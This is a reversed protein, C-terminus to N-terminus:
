IKFFNKLYEDEMCKQCMIKEMIFIRRKVRKVKKGEDVVVKSVDVSEDNGNDKKLNIRVFNKILDKKIGDNKKRYNRKKGLNESEGDGNLFEFYRSTDLCKNYITELNKDKKLIEENTKYRLDGWNKLNTYITLGTSSIQECENQNLSNSKSANTYTNLLNQLLPTDITTKKTPESKTIEKLTKLLTQLRSSSNRIQALNNQIESCSMKQTTNHTITLTIFLTIISKTTM